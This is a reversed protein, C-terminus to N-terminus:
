KNIDLSTRVNRRDIAERLLKVVDEGEVGTCKFGKTWTTLRASNLGEQKCPFSFTFGLPMRFEVLNRKDLFLFICEAIYDFLQYFHPFSLRFFNILFSFLFEVKEGTGNRLEDAITYIETEHHLEDGILEILLM